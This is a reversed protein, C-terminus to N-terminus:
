IEQVRKRDKCNNEFTLLLVQQLVNSVKLGVKTSEDNLQIFLAGLYEEFTKDDCNHLVDTMLPIHHSVAIAILQRIDDSPNQMIYALLQKQKEDQSFLFVEAYKRLRFISTMFGIFQYMTNEDM